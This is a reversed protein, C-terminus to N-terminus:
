EENVAVLELFADVVVPDFLKGSKERIEAKASSQSEGESISEEYAEVVAIIRASFPIEEGKLGDPYGTGDLYEHHHRIISETSHLMDITKVM